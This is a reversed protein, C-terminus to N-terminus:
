QGGIPKWGQAPDPDFSDIKGAIELTNEGLDAEYVVGNEGVMFSMVGTEEPEAPYALLAHGAVMHDNIIYDYAGGPATPGQRTLIRYYYGFYPVPQQDVGDLAIGDAAAQAVFAGIPSLPEGMEETWYLGDREGPDSLISSAFEMVGDGDYDVLRFAAQVQVARKLLAIVDLENAGIRRDLIEERAAGPDFQWGGAVSVLSVPFPWRTRGVQLEKRGEGDDVIEASEAFDALFEARAEADERPNDTGILDDSEPGFVVLLAARDEAALADVFAQVAAEPTPYTAPDALAAGTTLVLACAAGKLMTITKM